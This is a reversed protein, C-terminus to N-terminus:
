GTAALQLPSSEAPDSRPPEIVVVQNRGAEKARYMAQDARVLLAELDNDKGSLAAVGFSATMKIE